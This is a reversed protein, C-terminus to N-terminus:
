YSIKRKQLTGPALPNISPTLTVQIKLNESELATHILPDQALRSILVDPNVNGHLTRITLVLNNVKNEIQCAASFDLVEACQFLTEDLHNQTLLGSSLQLGSDLRQTIRDLRQVCSGCACDGPILRSLDGTRYRLLPMGTRTLTTIVVEGKEGNPMVTGTEPDIIEVLLDAERLHFGAHAECEVGGGLGTETMGWHDFVECGWICQLASRIADPLTDTSTLVKQIQNKPLVWDADDLRALRLLHVPSGVIVNIENEIIVQFVREEDGLPGYLIPLCGLRVLARKLLDGLSDPRLGPLLIMIRDGPRALTSMGVKFFDMTLELDDMTFFLRKSEGTTGSTPLTVIRMIEDQKVCTFRNPNLCLDKATTFPLNSLEALHYLNAPFLALLERYFPSQERLNKLLLNIKQLQYKEILSRDLNGTSAGIREAIWPHLPTIKM